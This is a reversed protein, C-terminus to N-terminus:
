DACDDGWIGLQEGRAIQEVDRYSEAAPGTGTARALGLSIMVAALDDGDPGIITADDIRGNRATDPSVDFSRGGGTIYALSDTALRALCEDGTPVEVDALTATVRELGRYLELTRGDVVDAVRWARREAPPPQLAAAPEALPTLAEPDITGHMPDLTDGDAEPFACGGLAAAGIAM